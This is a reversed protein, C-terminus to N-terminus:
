QGSDGMLQLYARELTDTRTTSLLDPITGDYRIKGNEMCIVRECLTEIDQPYHSTLLLTKKSEVISTKLTQWIKNRFVIDLGVTPEDLLLIKPSHALCMALFVKRQTGGSLDLVYAKSYEQIGLSTITKDCTAKAEKKDFGRLLLSYYIQLFVPLDTRPIADQPMVGIVNKISNMDAPVEHGWVTVKGGDSLLEGYIQRLLTTKGSGNPGLLGVSEGEHIVFSIDHNAKVGNAYTKSLHSVEIAEVV